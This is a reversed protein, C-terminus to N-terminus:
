KIKKNYLILLHIIIEHMVFCLSHKTIGPDTVAMHTQYSRFGPIGISQSSKNLQNNSNSNTSLFNYALYVMLFENYTPQRESKLIKQWVKMAKEIFNNAYRRSLFSTSLNKQRSFDIEVDFEHTDEYSTINVLDLNEDKTSPVIGKLENLCISSLCSTKAELIKKVKKENFDCLERYTTLLTAVGFDKTQEDIKKFTQESEPADKFFFDEKLKFLKNYNEDRISESLEQAGFPTTFEKKNAYLEIKTHINFANHVFSERIKGYAKRFACM